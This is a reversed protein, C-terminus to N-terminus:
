MYQIPFILVDNKSQSHFAFQMVNKNNESSHSKYLKFKEKPYAMIYDDYSLNFNYPHNYIEINDSWTKGINLLYKNDIKQTEVKFPNTLTTIKSSYKNTIFWIYEYPSILSFIKELSEDILVDNVKSDHINMHKMVVGANLCSNFFEEEILQNINDNCVISKPHITDVKIPDDMIQQQPKMEVLYAPSEIIPIEWTRRPKMDVSNFINDRIINNEM